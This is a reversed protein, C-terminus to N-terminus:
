SDFMSTMFAHSHLSSFARVVPRAEYILAPITDEREQAVDLLMQLVLCLVM